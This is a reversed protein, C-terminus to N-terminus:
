KPPPLPQVTITVHQPDPAAAIDVFKCYIPWDAAGKQM